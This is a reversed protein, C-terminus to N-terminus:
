EAKVNSLISVSLKRLAKGHASVSRFAKTLVAIDGSGFWLARVLLIMQVACQAGCALNEVWATWVKPDVRNGCRFVCFRCLVWFCLLILWLWLVEVSGLGWVWVLEQDESTHQRRRHQKGNCGLCDAEEDEACPSFWEEARWLWSSCLIICFQLCICVTRRKM